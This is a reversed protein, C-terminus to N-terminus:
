VGKDRCCQKAKGNGGGLDQKARNVGRDKCPEEVAPGANAYSQRTAQPRTDPSRWEPKTPSGRSNQDRRLAPFPRDRPRRGGERRAPFALHAFYERAARSRPPTRQRPDRCCGSAFLRVRRGTASRRISPA